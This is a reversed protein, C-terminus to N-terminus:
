RWARTGAREEATQRAVDGAGSEGIGGSRPRPQATRVKEELAERIVEALSVRRDAAVRRLQDLLQEDAMITTRQM